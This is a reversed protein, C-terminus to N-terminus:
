RKPIYFLLLRTGCVKELAYEKSAQSSIETLPDLFKELGMGLVEFLPTENSPEINFGVKLFSYVPILRNISLCKVSLTTETTFVIYYVM